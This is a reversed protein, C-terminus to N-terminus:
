SYLAPPTRAVQSTTPSITMSQLLPPANPDPSVNVFISKTVGGATAFVNGGTPLGTVASTAIDFSNTSNGQAITVNAPVHIVSPRYISGLNKKM